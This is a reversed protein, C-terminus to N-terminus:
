GLTPEVREAADIKQLRRAQELYDAKLEEIRKLLALRADPETAADLDARLAALRIHLERDLEEDKQAGLEFGHM